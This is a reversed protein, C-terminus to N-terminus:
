LDVAQWGWFRGVFGRVFDATVPGSARLDATSASEFRLRRGKITCRVPLPNPGKHIVGSADISANFPELARNILSAQETNM